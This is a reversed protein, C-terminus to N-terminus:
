SEYTCLTPRDVSFWMCSVVMGGHLLLVFLLFASVSGGGRAGIADSTNGDRRCVRARVDVRRGHGVFARVDHDLADREGDDRARHRTGIMRGM